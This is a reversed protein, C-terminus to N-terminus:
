VGVLWLLRMYTSNSTCQLVSAASTCALPRKGRLPHANLKFSVVVSAGSTMGSLATGVDGVGDGVVGDGVDGVGDGDFGSSVM